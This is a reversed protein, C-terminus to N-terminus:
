NQPAVPAGEGGRSKEDDSVIKVDVGDRLMNQGEVVVLDGRNLGALIEGYIGDKMGITVKVLAAKGEKVRYATGVEANDVDATKQLDFMIAQLPVLIVDDKKGFEVYVRCFMGPMLAGEDNAIEAEITAARSDPSLSPSARAVIGEFRKGSLANVEVVVKVSGEAIRKRLEGIYREGVQFKAIIPNKRVLSLIPVGSNVIAGSDLFRETVYGAFPARIKTEAFQARLLALRAESQKVQAKSVDLMASASTYQTEANELEQRTILNKEALKKQREFQASINQFEAESKRLSSEAVLLASESDKLQASLEADDLEVLLDGKGVKDGMNVYVRKIRGYVKSSLAVFEHAKLEGMFTLVQMIGGSKIVEAKVPIRREGEDGKQKAAGEKSSCGGLFVSLLTVAVTTILQKSFM